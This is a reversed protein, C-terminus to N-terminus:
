RKPGVVFSGVLLGNDKVTLGGADLVRLRQGDGRMYWLGVWIKFTKGEADDPVSIPLVDRLIKGPPADSFDLTSSLLVHDGNLTDGSPPEIHVFIGLGREIQASRTWDLELTIVDDPSPTPDSLTAGEFTAGSAFKAGVRITGEPLGEAVVPAGDMARPAVPTPAPGRVGAACLAFAVCPAGAAVGLWMSDGAAGPGTRRRRHASWGTAILSAVAVLSVVAGNRASAPEFRLSLAREGAPLDVALLGQDSVVDGVSAHWGPHWNQNVHLRSPRTLAVDLDIRNPTWLREAVSGAGEDVLNEEQALDARLLPSEPVAYAEWCSLSGRDLPEYFALAWRNGRAQHFAGPADSRPPPAIVDRTRAQQWHQYVLPGMAALITMSVLPPGWSALIPPIPPERNTRAGAALNEVFTLGQAALASVALAVPILFREPYRLSSYVPLVRLAAFLSPRVAYGAALWISLAAAIGLRWARPRLLGLLTAPVALAGVFFTGDERDGKVAALLMKALRTWSNGPAGGIVRRGESLTEVIPWLRVASLSLALVVILGGHVVWTAWPACTANPARTTAADLLEFACWLAALPATYTGGFGVCWALSVAAIVVGGRRGSLATRTGFAVWPLLEFSFFNIWGLRPALAFIGSLAFLPAALLAGASRAGRSRAYRFSGELGVAIMVFATLAEGRAEGFLLTLLFTPSVFRAQPTGLLYMGGCYYPDWLPMKRFRLLSQAAVSEYHGLVHADRFANVSAATALLPWTALLALTAFAGLRLPTRLAVLRLGRYASSLLHSAAPM